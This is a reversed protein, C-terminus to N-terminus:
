DKIKPTKFYGDEQAPANKLVKERALSPKVRDERFPIKIELVHRLPEVNETDLENLKEMYSLIEELQAGFVEKEETTLELMALRAVKEIDFKQSTM